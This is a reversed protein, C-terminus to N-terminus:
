GDSGPSNRAETFVVAASSGQVLLRHTPQGHGAPARWSGRTDSCSPTDGPDWAPACFGQMGTQAASIGRGSRCRERRGQQRQRLPWGPGVPHQPGLPVGLLTGSLVRVGPSPSGARAPGGPPTEHTRPTSASRRPQCAKQARAPRRSGAHSFPVGPVGPVEWVGWDTDQTPPSVGQYPARPQGPCTRTGGHMEAWADGSRKLGPAAGPDSGSLLGM